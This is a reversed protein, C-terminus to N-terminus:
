QGFPTKVRQWWGGKKPAAPDAHTIVVETSERPEVPAPAAARPKASEPEAQEPKAPEPASVESTAAVSSVPAEARAVPESPFAFLPESPAETAIAQAAGQPEAVLDPM